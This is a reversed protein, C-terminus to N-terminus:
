WGVGGGGLAESGIERWALGLLAWTSPLFLESVNIVYLSFIIFVSFSCAMFRRRVFANVLPYLFLCFFVLVGVLGLNILVARFVTDYVYGFGLGFLFHVSSFEGFADRRMEAIDLRIDGSDNLGSLKDAFMSQFTEFDFIIFLVLGVGLVTSLWLALRRHAPSLFVLAVLGVAVGGFASSSWSFVVCFLLLISLVWREKIWALFLFPVSAASMFSPEGLTSKIRLMKVGFVSMSQSWSATHDDFTRNVVFDGSRGFVLYFLWEYIGYAVVVWACYFIYDNLKDNNWHKFFLFTAVCAVLYLSQTFLSSRLLMSRENSIYNLGVIYDGQSLFHNLQSVVLFVGFGGLCLM